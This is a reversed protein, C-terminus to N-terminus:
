PAFTYLDDLFISRGLLRNEPWDVEWVLEGDTTVERVSGNSGYNHLTNGNDLRHAEGATSANVGEGLGFNWVERLMQAEEDIEYERAVTEQAGTTTHTSLLLHGNDLFNSGHQWAFLSSEPDFGWAPNPGWYHLTDGTAHDIEVVASNTYFSYLFTDTAEHWYLANSQHYSEAFVDTSTWITEVEEAGLPLEVLREPSTLDAGWVLAGDALETWAHHLGPTAYSEVISGDIKMRHVQSGAGDDWDAWWTAEDWMIDDGDYSRRMFITWHSSPTELAWVYRGQRDIIFKWYDGQTWGGATSNISSMLYVGDTFWNLEDAVLVEPVPLDAPLPGTQWTHTAGKGSAFAFRWSFSTDFPIGLLLVENSGAAFDQQPSSRWEGEDFSFEISGSTAVQQTWRVYVLSGIEDHLPTTIDVAGALEDDFPEQPEVTEGTDGANGTDSTDTAGGDPATTDEPEEAPTCATLLSLILM